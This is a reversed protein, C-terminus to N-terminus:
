SNEDHEATSSTEGTLPDQRLPDARRPDMEDPDRPMNM